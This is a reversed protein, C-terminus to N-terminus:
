NRPLVEPPLADPRYEGPRNRRFFKGAQWVFLLLFLGILTAGGLAHAELARVILASLGLAVVVFAAVGPWYM